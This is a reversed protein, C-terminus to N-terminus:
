EEEEKKKYVEFAGPLAEEKERKERLRERMKPIEKEEREKREEKAKELKERYEKEKEAGEQTEGIDEEPAEGQQVKWRTNEVDELENYLKELAPAVKKRTNEYKNEAVSIRDNFYDIKKQAAPNPEHSPHIGRLYKEREDKINEIEERQTKLPEKLEDIQGALSQEQDILEKVKGLQEMREAPDGPAPIMEPALSSWPAYRYFIELLATQYASENLAVRKKMKEYVDLKGSSHRLKEEFQKLLPDSSHPDSKLKALEQVLVGKAHQVMRDIREKSPAPGYIAPFRGSQAFESLTLPVNQQGANLRDRLFKEYVDAIAKTSGEGEVVERLLKSASQALELEDVKENIARTYKHSRDYKDALQHVEQRLGSQGVGGEQITRHKKKFGFGPGSKGTPSPERPAYAGAKGEPMKEYLAQMWPQPMGEPWDIWAKLAAIKLFRYGDQPSLPFSNLSSEDEIGLDEEHFDHFHDEDDKKSPYDREKELEQNDEKDDPDDRGPSMLEQLDKQTGFYSYSTETVKAVTM